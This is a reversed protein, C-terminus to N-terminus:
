MKSRQIHERVEKVPRGRGQISVWGHEARYHRQIHKLAKCIYNCATFTCQFSDRYVLLGPVAESLPNPYRIGEKSRALDLLDKIM